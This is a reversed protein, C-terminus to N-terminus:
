PAPPDTPLDDYLEALDLEVAIPPISLIAPPSAEVLRWRPAEDDRLFLPTGGTMARAHGDLWERRVGTRRELAVYADYSITAPAADTM